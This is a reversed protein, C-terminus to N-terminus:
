EIKVFKQKGFSKGKNKIECIYVGNKLELTNIRHTDYKYKAVLSGDLDYINIEDYKFESEISLECSSPNPYIKFYSQNILEKTATPLGLSEASLKMIVQWGGEEFKLSDIVFQGAVVIGEDSTQITHLPTFAYVSRNPNELEGAKIFEGSNTERYFFINNSEQFRIVHLLEDNHDLLITNIHGVKKNDIVMKERKRIFNGDIDYLAYGKHGQSTGDSTRLTVIIKDKSQICQTSSTKGESGSLQDSLEVFKNIAGDATVSWLFHRWKLQYQQLGLYTFNDDDSSFPGYTYVVNTWGGPDKLNFTIQKEPNTYFTEYITDHEIDLYRPYLYLIDEPNSGVYFTEFNKNPHFYNSMGLITEKSYTYISDTKGTKLDLLRRSYYGAYGFVPLTSPQNNLISRVGNLELKNNRDIKMRTYYHYGYGNQNDPNIHRQWNIEGTILNISTIINGLTFRGRIDYNLLINKNVEIPPTEILGQEEAWIIGSSEHKETTDMLLYKWDVLTGGFEISPAPLQAIVRSTFYMFAILTTYTKM